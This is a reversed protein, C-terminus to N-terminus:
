VNTAMWRYLKQFSNLNENLNFFNNQIINEENISLLAGIVSAFSANCAADPLGQIRKPTGIRIHNSLFKSSLESLGTLQSSGGSFVVKSKLFHSYPTQNIHKEILELIESVRAKIIENVIDLSVTQYSNSNSEDLNAINIQENSSFSSNFLNGHLVKIREAESFTTALGSAIDKTINYGGLSLDFSYILNNENFIGISTTTAGFDVLACGIGKEENALCSFSNAYASSIFSLVEIHNQEIVRSINSLVSESIKCINVEGKLNHGVMGKPNNISTSNDIQFKVPIAHLIKSNPEYANHTCNRMIKEIEKNTIEGNHIATEAKFTKSYQRGGNIVIHAGNISTGAMKEASSVANAVSLSLKNINTVNGQKFGECINQSNGIIHFGTDMEKKEAILCTVKSSGIDIITTTNKPKNRKFLNYM